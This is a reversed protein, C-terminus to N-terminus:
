PFSSRMTEHKPKIFIFLHSTYNSSLLTHGFPLGPPFLAQRNWNRGTDGGRTWPLIIKEELSLM